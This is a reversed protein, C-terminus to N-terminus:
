QRKNHAPTLGERQSKRNCYEVADFWSIQEVPRNIDGTFRSPNTGMIELYEKQTVEYKSMSFSSVTVQRQPSEERAFRGDESAPSGMTFTGGNISVMDNQQAFAFSVFFSIIFFLIAYKKM